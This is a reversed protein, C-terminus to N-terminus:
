GPDTISDADFFTRFRTILGDADFVVHANVLLEAPAAEGVRLSIRYTMIAEDAVVAVREFSFNLTWDAPIGAMLYDRLEVAGTAQRITAPDEIVADDAFLALRADVDGSAWTDVYARLAKEIHSQQNTGVVRGLLWLWGASSRASPAALDADAARENESM